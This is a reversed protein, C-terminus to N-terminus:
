SVFFLAVNVAELSMIARKLTTTVVAYGLRWFAGKHYTVTAALRKVFLRIPDFAGFLMITRKLASFGLCFATFITTFFELRMMSSDLRTLPKAGSFAARYNRLTFFGTLNSDDDITLGAALRNADPGCPQSICFVEETRFIALIFKMGGLHRTAPIGGPLTPVIAVTTRIPISLSFLYELSVAVFALNAVYISIAVLLSEPFIQVHVM